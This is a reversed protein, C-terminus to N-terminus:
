CTAGERREDGNEDSAASAKFLRKVREAVKHPLPADTPNPLMETLPGTPRDWELPGCKTGGNTRKIDSMCILAGTGDVRLVQIAERRGPALSPRVGSDGPGVWVEGSLTYSTIEWVHFAKKLLTLTIEKSQDEWPTKFIYSEGRANSAKWMTTLAGGNEVVAIKAAMEQEVLGKLPASIGSWHTRGHDFDAEWAGHKVIKKLTVVAKSGKRRLFGKAVTEGATDRVTFVTRSKTSGTFVVTSSGVEISQSVGEPLFGPSIQEIRQQISSENPPRNNNM